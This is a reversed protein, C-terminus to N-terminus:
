RRAMSAPGGSQRPLSSLIDVVHSALSNALSLEHRAAGADFARTDELACALERALEIARILPGKETAPPATGPNKGPADSEPLM